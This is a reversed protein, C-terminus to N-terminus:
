WPLLLGIGFSALNLVLSVLAAEGFRIARRQVLFLGLAEVLWVCVEAPLIIWFPFLSDLAHVTLWLGPQTSLNLLLLTTLFVVKPGKRLLVYVTGLLSEVLVTAFLGPTILIGSLFLPLSIIWAPIYLGLLSRFTAGARGVLVLFLILFVWIAAYTCLFIAWIGMDLPPFGLINTNPGCYRASVVLDDEQVLVDFLSDFSPHTFVNSQRVRGDAFEIELRHYPQYGYAMSSCTNEWCEFRQPGMQELPRADTCDPDTCEYQIGTLIAPEPDIAYTFSFQMTPKPGMDARVPLVFVVILSLGLLVAGARRAFPYM